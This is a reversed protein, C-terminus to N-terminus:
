DVGVLVVIDGIIEEPTWENGVYGKVLNGQRDIVVTRLTHSVVAPSDAKREVSLGLAAALQDVADPAGPPSTLFSWVAPDAGLQAAHTKLVEPTDYTPDITVSLLHADLEPRTKLFAQLDKFRRDMLPCMTPMPCRTYTFTLVIAQRGFSRLDVADGDQNVFSGNPVPQGDAVVRGGGLAAGPPASPLAPLPATGSKHVASLYADNPVVVLIADIIDGASIGDFLAADPVKYPMTMAPMFGPIADHQITAERRDASFRLVQGHLQFQRRDSSNRICGVLGVTLILATCFLTSRRM